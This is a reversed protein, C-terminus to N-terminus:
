GPLWDTSPEVGIAQVVLDVGVVDGTSLQLYLPWPGDQVGATSGLSECSTSGTTSSLASSHISSPPDSGAYVVQALLYMVCIVYWLMVYRALSTTFSVEAIGSACCGVLWGDQLDSLPSGQGTAIHM